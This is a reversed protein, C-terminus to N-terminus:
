VEALSEQESGEPSEVEKSGARPAPMPIHGAKIQALVLNEIDILTQPTKKLEEVASDKGQGLQVNDFSFWAGKKKIIGMEVAMDFVCLAHVIGENFVLDFEATRFPPAMKNKVVRARIRIGKDVGGAGKISAIRRTEVRASAYFKLARGGTTVEPSGFFVGLKERLQNIFIACTNSKALISALKRLAQSMLRAQMGMSADGIEGELESKPILAAVSDLVIL